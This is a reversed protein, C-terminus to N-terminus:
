LFNFTNTINDLAELDAETVAVVAILVLADPNSIPNAAIGIYVAEGCSWYDVQGVFVPDEYPERGEPTCGVDIPALVDLVEDTTGSVGVTAGLMLLGPQEYSDLFGALDRAAVISPTPGGPLGLDAPATDQQAWATPVSVTMTGTDDVLEEYDYAATGEDVEEVEDGLETAFSQRVTMPTGNLEGAWVEETDFRIVQIGIPDGPVASRLVDCYSEMTGPSMDVGNLMTIIDGPLVGANAAPTGAEVAAVWVGVLSEDDSVVAEGNVGITENDGAQLEEVVPIALDAAIARYQVTGTGPDSSAYNVAVVRGDSGVLPGGSNGPQIAADHEIVRRVSAWQTEGDAEAKSVIGRTVTYEPDGLPFGATFVELTPAVADTHWDLYRYPGPDTLQLVALDSCESVGIVRAPIESGDEMVVSVAGAGTVVHNNTVVIGDPSVVFGSGTWGGSQQGVLPDRFSGQALVQVVAPRIDEISTIGNGAPPDATDLPASDPAPEAPAETSPAATDSAASAATANDSSTSDSSSSDGGGCSALVLAGALAPVWIRHPRQRAM